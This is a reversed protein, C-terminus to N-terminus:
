AEAVCPPRKNSRTNGCSYYTNFRDGRTTTKVSGCRNCRYKSVGLAQAILRWKHIRPRAPIQSHRDPATGGLDTWASTM